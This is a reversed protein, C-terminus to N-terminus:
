KSMIKRFAHEIKDLKTNAGADVSGYLTEIICAGPKLSPDKRIDIEGIGEITSLLKDKNETLYDYDSASVKLVVDDRNSCREIGQRVLDLINEKNLNVETGIVKRAIDLVLNVADKEIGALIEHYETEAHQKIFEAEMLLDEYQKKAEEYGNEFGIKRAKEETSSVLEDAQTRANDMIREAELEAEKIIDSAEENAKDILNQVYERSMSELEENSEIFANEANAEPVEAMKITQFNLPAKIQITGGISVQSSKFIKNYLLRM